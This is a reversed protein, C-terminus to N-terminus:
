QASRGAGLHQALFGELERLMQIRTPADSLWHDDGRLEVFRVDKGAAQLRSLMRRTQDIPVVTDDTGHILLIPIRVRDALNVPSVARIHERDEQRDGISLRWYDSTMSHRGGTQASEVRLMMELDSVGAISAACKYREPTLTAGALAAYGGYSAGVVCVRAPDVIGARVLAAVGDEIDTQMLGGWQRRGAEEWARGYGESGRFNPQLVAYGRSAMFAAWWDFDLTDRSHPGGHPFLVLPLNRRQDGPPYTLYAPIRVNDRARYSIAQREGLAHQALGPYLMGIRTLQEGGRDLIYYGGGDLGLEAFVLFRSRDRSWSVISASKGNFIRELQERVAQLDPEFFHQASSLEHTTWRVGVVRRTWPDIDVGSVDAGERQFLLARAGDDRSMTSLTGFDQADSDYVVLRGDVLLGAFWPPAGAESVDEALLRPEAGDYVFVRWRNSREDSDRRIVPAGADDLVFGITDPNTGRAPAHRVDGTQLNVRYVSTHQAESGPARGILRGFGPEGAIPAVLWAGQDRWPDDDDTTLLKARGSGIDIVGNRSFDIRRPRGEYFYGQPLVQGPRFTHSIVYTVREDDAWGVGRLQDDEGVRTGYVTRRENIDFVRISAAGNEFMALAVKSGDPSIAADAIAPLNGYVEVPAPQASADASFLLATAAVIGALVRM